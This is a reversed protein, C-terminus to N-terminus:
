KLAEIEKKRQNSTVVAITAIGGAALTIGIIPTAYKKAFAIVQDKFTATNDPLPNQPQPTEPTTQPTPTQPTTDTTTPNGKSADTTTTTPNLKSLFGAITTEANTVLDTAQKQAAALADAAAKETASVADSTSKAAPTFISGLFDTLQKIYDPAGTTTVPTSISSGIPKKYLGSADNLTAGQNIYSNVNATSLSYSKHTGDSYDLEARWTNADIQSFIIVQTVKTVAPAKPVIGLTQLINTAEETAALGANQLATTVATNLDKGAKQADAIAAQVVSNVQSLIDNSQPNSTNKVSITKSPDTTSPTSATSPKTADIVPVNNVAVVKSVNPTAFTIGSSNTAFQENAIIQNYQSQTVLSGRPNRPDAVMPEAKQDSFVLARKQGATLNDSIAASNHAIMTAKPTAAAQAAKIQDLTTKQSGLAAAAQNKQQTAIASVTAAHQNLAQDIQADSLGQQKFTIIQAAKIDADAKSLHENQQFYNSLMNLTNNFDTRSTPNSFPPISLTM